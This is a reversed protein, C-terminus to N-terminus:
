GGGSPRSRRVPINLTTQFDNYTISVSSTQGRKLTESDKIKWGDIKKSSNDSYVAKVSIGSNNNDLTVGEEADGNYDAVISTMKPTTCEVELTCSENKYKITVKSSADAALKEPKDITWGSIIKSNGNKLKATVEIGNNKENLMTGAETNGNYKAAISVVKHKQVETVGAIVVIVSAVIAIIVGVAKKFTRRKQPEQTPADQVTFNSNGPQMSRPQNQESENEDSAKDESVDTAEQNDINMTNQDALDPKVKEEDDGHLSNKNKLDDREDKSEDTKEEKSAEDKDPIDEEPKVELLSCGCESCFKSTNPNITACKPCKKM